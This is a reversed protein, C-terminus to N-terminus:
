TESKELLKKKKQHYEEFAIVNRALQEKLETLGELLKKKQEYEEQTVIGSGLQDKLEVLKYGLESAAQDEFDLAVAKKRKEMKGRIVLYTLGMIGIGIFVCAGIVAFLDGVIGLLIAMIWAFFSVFYGVIVGKKLTHPLEKIFWYIPIGVMMTGLFAVGVVIGCPPNEECWEFLFAFGIAVLIEFCCEALGDESM